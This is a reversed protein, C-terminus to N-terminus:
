DFNGPESNMLSEVTYPPSPIYDQGAQLSKFITATALMILPYAIILGVGLLLFGVIAIFLFVLMILFLEMTLDETAAYSEKLADIPNEIGEIVFYGAFQLRIAIYIGPFILLILGIFIIVAALINTLVFYLITRVPVLFDVLGQLRNEVALICIKIVAVGLWIRIITFLLSILSDVLGPSAPEYIAYYVQPVIALIIYTVTVGVLFSMNLKLVSWSFQLIEKFDMMRDEQQM